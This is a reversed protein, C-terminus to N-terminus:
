KISRTKKYNDLVVVLEKGSAAIRGTVRVERPAANVMSDLKDLPVVAEPGAEGIMALTPSDVVGGKALAPISQMVAILSGVAAVGLAVGAFPISSYASLTKAAAAKMAATAEADHAVAEAQLYAIFPIIQAVCEAISGGLNLLTGAAGGVSAGLGSFAGSLSEAAIQTEAMNKQAQQWLMADGLGEMQTPLEAITTPLDAFLAENLPNKKKQSTSTFSPLGQMTYGKFTRAPLAAASGATRAPSANLSAQLENTSTVIEAAANRSQVSSLFLQMADNLEKDSLRELALYKVLSATYKDMAERRLRAAEEPNAEKIKEWKLGKGLGSYEKEAWAADKMMKKYAAFDAKIQSREEASSARADLRFADEIVATSIASPSLGLKSAFMRKLAAESDTTVKNAAESITAAYGKAEDLAAQREEASLGKNRARSMAERYRSQDLTTVFTASMKTNALQDMADYLERSREIMADLGDRFASFDANALAYVFNDFGGKLTELSRGWADTLAQSSGVVAKFGETATMAVGAAVGLGKLGNILGGFANKGLNRLENVEKKSKGIKNNFDKDNLLLKAIIDGKAM